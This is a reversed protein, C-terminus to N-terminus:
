KERPWAFLTAAIIALHIAIFFYGIIPSAEGSFLSYINWAVGCFLELFLVLVFLIRNGLPNKSGLFLVCGVVGHFLGLLFGLDAFAHTEISGPAAQWGPYLSHALARLFPPAALLMQLVYWVAVGRMWTKAWM